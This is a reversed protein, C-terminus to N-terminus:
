WLIACVKRKADLSTAPLLRKNSFWPLDDGTHQKNPPKLVWRKIGEDNEDHFAM